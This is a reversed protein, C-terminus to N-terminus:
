FLQVKVQLASSYNFLPICLYTSQVGYLTLNHSQIAYPLTLFKVDDVFGALLSVSWLIWYLVVRSCHITIGYM